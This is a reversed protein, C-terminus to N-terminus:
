HASKVITHQIPTISLGWSEDGTVV